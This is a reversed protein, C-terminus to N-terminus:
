KWYIQGKEGNELGRLDIYELTNKEAESITNQYVNVLSATEKKIDDKLSLYIKFNNQTFVRVEFESFEIRKTIININRIEKILFLIESFKEKEIATTGLAPPNKKTPDSFIILSEKFDSKQFIVGDDAVLFCQFPNEGFCFIGIEKRKEIEISIKNPFEKKIKVEKIEPFNSKIEKSIKGSNFLFFNKKKSSVEQIKKIFESSSFIKIEKIQFCTTNFLLWSLSSFFILFLVLDWFWRKRFVSKKIKKRYIIKKNSKIM